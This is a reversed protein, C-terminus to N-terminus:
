WSVYLKKIKCEVDAETMKFEHLRLKSGSLVEVVM